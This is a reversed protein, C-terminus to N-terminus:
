ALHGTSAVVEVSIRSSVFVIFARDLLAPDLPKPSARKHEDVKTGTPKM